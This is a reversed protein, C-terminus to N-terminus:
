LQVESQYLSINEIKEVENSGMEVFIDTDEIIANSASMKDNSSSGIIICSRIKISRKTLLVVKVASSDFALTGTLRRM